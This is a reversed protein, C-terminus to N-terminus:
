KFLYWPACSSFQITLKSKYSLALSDELTAAGNQMGVLLAHPNRNSVLTLDGERGGGSYALGGDELLHAGVGGKEVVQTDGTPRSDRRAQALCCSFRLDWLAITTPLNFEDM